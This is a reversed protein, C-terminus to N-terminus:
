TAGDEFGAGFDELVSEGAIDAGARGDGRQSPGRFRPYLCAPKNDLMHGLQNVVLKPDDRIENM